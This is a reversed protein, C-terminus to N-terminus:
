KRKLIETYKKLIFYFIFFTRSYKFTKCQQGLSGVVEVVEKM